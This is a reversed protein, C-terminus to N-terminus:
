SKIMNVKLWIKFLVDNMTMYEYRKYYRMFKGHKNIITKNSALNCKLKFEM